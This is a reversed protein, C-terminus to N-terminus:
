QHSKRQRRKLLTKAQRKRQTAILKQHALKAADTDPTKKTTSM